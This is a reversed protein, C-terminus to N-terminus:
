NDEKELYVLEETLILHLSLKQDRLFDMGLISPLAQAVQIKKDSTKTTKLASLSLSVAISQRDETLLYAKIKPLGIQKYRSGGFDVEGKSSKGSIPIQLKMVEKESFYSEPSGTDIVFEMLQKQIRLSECEIVATLIPRGEVIQLPIRKKLKNRKNFFISLRALLGSLFM